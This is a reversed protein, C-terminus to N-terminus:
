DGIAATVVIGALLCVVSSSALAPLFFDRLRNDEWDFFDPLVRMAGVGILPGVVVGTGILLAYDLAGLDTDGFHGYGFVGAIWGAVPVACLVYFRQLL